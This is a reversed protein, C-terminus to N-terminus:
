GGSWGPGDVRDSSTVSLGSSPFPLLACYAVHRVAGVDCTDRRRRRRRRSPGAGRGAATDGGSPRGPQESSWGRRCTGRGSRSIGGLAALRGGRTHTHTICRRRHRRSPSASEAGLGTVLASPRAALGGAAPWREVSGAAAPLASGARWRGAVAGRLMGPSPTGAAPCLPVYLM